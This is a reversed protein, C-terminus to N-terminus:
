AARLDKLSKMYDHSKRLETLQQKLVTKLENSIDQNKCADEMAHLCRDEAEELRAIFKEDPSNTVAAMLEGFYRNAKGTITESAQVDDHSAGRSIMESQLKDVVRNHLSCLEDFKNRLQQEDVKGKAKNYFECADKNTDVLKAVEKIEAKLQDNSM